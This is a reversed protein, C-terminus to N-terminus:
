PLIIGATRLAALIANIKTLFEKNQENVGLVISAVATAIGTDVQGATPGSGGATSAATAAVDVLAGNVTGTLTGTLDPVAAGSVDAIADAGGGSGLIEVWFKSDTYEILKGAVPRVGSNSTLGVTQDDKAYVVKGVSSQSLQDGSGASAFEFTGRRVPCSKAGSAGSNVVTQEAVGVVKLTADESAPVLYGATTVAVIGGAYVTTATLMPYSVESIVASDGRRSTNRAASLAM